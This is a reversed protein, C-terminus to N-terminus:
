VYCDNFPCNYTELYTCLLGWALVANYLWPWFQPLTFRIKFFIRQIKDRPARRRNCTGDCVWLFSCAADHEACLLSYLKPSLIFVSAWATCSYSYQTYLACCCNASGGQKAPCSVLALYRVACRTRDLLMQWIKLIMHDCLVATCDLTLSCHKCQLWLLINVSLIYVCFFCGIWLLMIYVFMSPWNAWRYSLSAYIARVLM